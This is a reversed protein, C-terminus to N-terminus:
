WEYKDDVELDNGDGTVPKNEDKMCRVSMIHDVDHSEESIGGWRYVRMSYNYTATWYYGLDSLNCYNNNGDSYGSYPFYVYRDATTMEFYGDISNGSMNAFVEKVPVKWGAPCPDYMTKKAGWLDQNGDWQADNYVITPNKVAAEISANGYEYIIADYPVTYMYNYAIFPDKRGWQYYLGYSQYSYKETTLAGLNRDMIVAGSNLKAPTKDLDLNTVWIHWSWLINGDADKVAILANGPKHDFPLTFHVRGEKLTVDAIIEGRNISYNEDMYGGLETEWLLVAEYIEGVPEDSNGKVTANFAYEGYTPEVIYCNATGDLSLDFVNGDHPTNFSKVESYSIDYDNIAYARVYYKTANELGTLTYSYEGLGGEVVQRNPSDYDLESTTGWIIGRETVPYIGEAIVAAEITAGESHIDKFALVRVMPRLSSEYNEDKMCRIPQGDCRDHQIEYSSSHDLYKTVGCEATWLHTKDGTYSGDMDGGSGIRPTDPYWFYDEENFYLVVGHPGGDRDHKVKIGDWVERGPVRWGAPCPDYITKATKSWYADNLNEVWNYGTPYDTPSAIAKAMSSFQGVRNHRSHLSNNEDLTFPDKKGWQYYLAGGFDGEVASVSGLNRDMMVYSSGDSTNYIHEIIEDTRWIHWSWIITGQADKAAVLANGEVEGILFVVNKGDFSVGSVVGPRDEWLLEASVPSIFPSETHFQAGEIFGYGGCGITTADFSYLGTPSEDGTILYSNATSFESLNYVEDAVIAIQGAKTVNARRITLPNTAKKVMVKGDTTAVTIVFTNYTAPPLVIYFPTPTTPDLTVGDNCNLTISSKANSELILEPTSSSMEIRFKGAVSIPSNDADYGIFSVSKVTEEGILNVAFVGALSNFQFIEGANARAVMPMADRAFSEPEYTQSSPLNFVINNPDYNFVPSASMPYFAYFRSGEDSQGVFTATSTEGPEVNTFTYMSGYWDARCVGITDGYQWLVQRYEDGMAGGLVTKTQEGDAIVATFTMSVKEVKAAEPLEQEEVRACSFVAALSCTIGIIYKFTSKM